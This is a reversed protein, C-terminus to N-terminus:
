RLSVRYGAHIRWAAPVDPGAPRYGGLLYGGHRRGTWAFGTELEPAEGPALAVGVGALFDLRWRAPAAAPSLELELDEGRGSRETFIGGRPGQLKATWDARGWPKGEVLWVSLETDCALDGAAPWAPHDGAAPGAPPPSPGREVPLESSPSGWSSMPGAASSEPAPELTRDISFGSSSSAHLIPKAGEVHEVKPKTLEGPTADIELLRRKARESSSAADRAAADAEFWARGTKVGLFFLGAVVAVVALLGAVNFWRPLYM